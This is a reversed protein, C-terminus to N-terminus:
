LHTFLKFYFSKNISAWNINKTLLASKVSYTFLVGENSALHVGYETIVKNDKSSLREKAGVLIINSSFKKLERLELDLFNSEGYDNQLSYKYINYM